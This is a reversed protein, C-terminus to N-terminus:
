LYFYISVYVCACVCQILLIGFHPNPLLESCCLIQFANIAFGTSVIKIHLEPLVIFYLRLFRSYKITYKTYDTIYPIV